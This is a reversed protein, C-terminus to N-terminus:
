PIQEYALHHMVHYALYIYPLYCREAKMPISKCGPSKPFIDGAHVDPPLM